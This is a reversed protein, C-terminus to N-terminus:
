RDVFDDKEKINNPSMSKKKKFIDKTCFQYNGKGLLNIQSSCWDERYTGLPNTSKQM